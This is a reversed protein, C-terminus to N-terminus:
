HNNSIVKRLIQSHKDRTSHARKKINICFDTVTARHAEPARNHDTPTGRLTYISNVCDTTTRANCNDTLGTTELINRHVRKKVSGITSIKPNKRVKNKIM